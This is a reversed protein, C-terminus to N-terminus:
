AEMEWGKGRHGGAGKADVGESASGGVGVRDVNEGDRVCLRRDNCVVHDRVRCADHNVNHMKNERTKEQEEEPSGPLQASGKTKPGHLISCPLPRLSPLLLTGQSRCSEHNARRRHAPDTEHPTRNRASTPSRSVVSSLARRAGPPVPTKCTGPARPGDRAPHPGQVGHARRAGLSALRRREAPALLAPNAHDAADECTEHANLAARQHAGVLWARRLDDGEREAREAVLVHVEVLLPRLDRGRDWEEDHEPARFLVQHIGRKENETGGEERGPHEDKADVALPGTVEDQQREGGHRMKRSEERGGVGMRRGRGGRGVKVRGRARQGGERAKWRREKM